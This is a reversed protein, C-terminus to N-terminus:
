KHFEIETRRNQMRGERTENTSVFHSAGYGKTQIRSAQVGEHILYDKVANARKQSLTMNYAASGTIDTYGNVIITENPNHRLQEAVKDLNEKAAHSLEASELAFHSTTDLKIVAHAPKHTECANGVCGDECLHHCGSLALASVLLIALQKKM